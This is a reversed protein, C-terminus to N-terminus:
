RSRGGEIYEVAIGRVSEVRHEEMLERRLDRCRWCITPRDQEHIPVDPKHRLQATEGCDSCSGMLSM